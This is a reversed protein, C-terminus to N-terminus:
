RDPWAPSEKLRCLSGRDAIFRAYLLLVPLRSAKGAPVAKYLDCRRAVAESDFCTMAALHEDLITRAIPLAAERSLGPRLRPDYLTRLLMRDFIGLGQYGVHDNLLTETEGNVEGLLGM